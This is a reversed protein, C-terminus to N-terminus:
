RLRRFMLIVATAQEAAARVQKVNSVLLAGGYSQQQKHNHQQLVVDRLLLERSGDVTVATGPCGTIALGLLQVSGTNRFLFKYCFKSTNCVVHWDTDLGSVCVTM